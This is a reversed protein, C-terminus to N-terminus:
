QHARQDWDLRCCRTSTAGLQFGLTLQAPAPIRFDFGCYLRPDDHPDRQLIAEIVDARPKDIPFALPESAGDPWVLVRTPQLHEGLAWGTVRLRGSADLPQDQADQPRDLHWQLQRSATSDPELRCTVYSRRIRTPGSTDDDAVSPAAFSICSTTGPKRAVLVCDQWVPDREPYLAPDWEAYADLTELGAYRALARMGDPYFRWCDVPYRHEYGSSPAILCCLGGPRMIRAVEGMTEWFYEIHEFAQGSVVVDFSATELESWQYLDHLVVDVNKGPSMDVGTYQWAEDDFVPRYSGNVDMSGIDAIAVPLGAAQALYRERFRLM